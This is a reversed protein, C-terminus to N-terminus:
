RIFYMLATGTIALGVVVSLWLPLPRRQLLQPVPPFPPLPPLGGLQGQGFKLRGRFSRPVPPTAGALARVISFESENAWREAEGTLGLALVMGNALEVASGFRQGKDKALAQAVVPDLGAPCNQHVTSPADPEEEIIRSLIHPISEGEFAVQNTLMEYLISGLAFVDTRQDVDGAGMAQEPSMYYPSGLTTGLATLKSSSEMQLKVSGFDLIRISPGHASDCLFINAPKLDRHIFGFSHAYDLALAVQMVIRVVRALPLPGGELAQSLEQGELFEMVMYHSGDGTDGYGLVKVIHPHNMEAASEYERRLREVAVRDCAVEAHLVKIAVRM